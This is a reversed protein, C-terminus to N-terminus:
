YNSISQVTFRKDCDGLLIKDGQLPYICIGLQNPDAKGLEPIYDAVTGKPIEQRAIEMADVIIKEAEEHTKLEYDVHLTNPM